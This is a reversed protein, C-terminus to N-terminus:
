LENGIKYPKSVRMQTPGDCADKSGLPVLQYSPKYHKLVDCSMFCLEEYTQHDEVPPLIVFIGLLSKPLVSM